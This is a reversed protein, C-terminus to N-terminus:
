SSVTGAPAADLVAPYRRRLAAVQEGYTDRGDVVLGPLLDGFANVEAVAHRRWDSSFMLDVGVHLSGPFCQAVRACTRMAEDYADPGAAARVAALDGRRGGLHLNTMPSRSTRVVVHTPRGAIVVVRLDLIRGHLTAKPFWREVHLGDPALRDILRAVTAEDHYDRVLLSNYLRGGSEEISTTARVSGQGNHLQLAIVGAASSGHAPKVFVRSWGADAMAARLERYSSPSPLAPPVPVGADQLLAHCARKDFMTLIEAPDSVLTAGATRALGAVRALAARLGDYWAALGVLEGPQAPTAARRLLRDVEANEGPSDLRVLDGAALVPEPATADDRVIDYWALVAPEPLGAARVAAAFHSVRRNEPNGVVVLRGAGTGPQGPERRELARM